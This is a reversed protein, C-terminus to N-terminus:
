VKRNREDEAYAFLDRISKDAESLKARKFGDPNLALATYEYRQVIQEMELLLKVSQDKIDQDSGISALWQAIVELRKMEQRVSRELRRFEPTKLAGRIGIRDLFWILVGCVFITFVASGFVHALIEFNQISYLDPYVEDQKQETMQNYLGMFFITRLSQLIELFNFAFFVLSGFLPIRERIYLLDEAIWSYKNISNRLM